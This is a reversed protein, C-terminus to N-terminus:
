YKKFIGKLEMIKEEIEDQNKLEFTGRVCNALHTELIEGQVSKVASKIASLQNLIDVCYKQGEVMKQVGRVQGEIKKLRSLEKSNDPYKKDCCQKNKTM